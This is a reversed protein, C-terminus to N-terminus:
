EAPDLTLATVLGRAVRRALQPSAEIVNGTSVTVVTGDLTSAERTLVATVRGQGGEVTRGVEVILPEGAVIEAEIRGPGRNEQDMKIIKM